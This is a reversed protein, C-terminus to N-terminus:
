DLTPCCRRLHLPANLCVFFFYIQVLHLCWLGVSISAIWGRRASRRQLMAMVEHSTEFLRHVKALSPKRELAELLRSYFPVRETPIVYLLVVIALGALAVVGTVAAMSGFLVPDEMPIEFSYVSAIGILALLCLAAVDIMKEFVVLNTARALDMAGSRKLFYGKTLDGMKSPLVINMTQSALILSM